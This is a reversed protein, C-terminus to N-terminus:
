LSVERLKKVIDLPMSVRQLDDDDLSLLLRSLLDNTPLNEIGTKARLLFPTEDIGKDTLWSEAKQHVKELGVEPGAVYRSEIEVFGKPQDDPLSDRFHVPAQVSIYRRKPEDLPKLFAAWFAPHFRRGTQVSRVRTIRELLADADEVIEGVPIAGVLERRSSHQIVTVRGALEDQMYVRLSLGDTRQKLLRAIEGGEQGGLRSLLLPRHHNDWYQRVSAVIQDALTDPKESTTM